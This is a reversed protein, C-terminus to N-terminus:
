IEEEEYDPNEIIETGSLIYKGYKWIDDPITGVYEVIEWDALNMGRMVAKGYVRIEDETECTTSNDIDKWGTAILGDSKKCYLYAM